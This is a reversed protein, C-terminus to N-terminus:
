SGRKIWLSVIDQYTDSLPGRALESSLILRAMGGSRTTKVPERCWSSEAGLGAGKGMNTVQQPCRQV